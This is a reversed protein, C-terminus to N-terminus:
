SICTSRSARKFSNRCTCPPTLSIINVFWLIADPAALPSSSSRARGMHWHLYLVRSGARRRHERPLPRTPTTSPTASLHRVAGIIRAGGFVGGRSRLVPCPTFRGRPGDVLRARLVRHGSPLRRLRCGGRWRPRRARRRRRRYDSTVRPM